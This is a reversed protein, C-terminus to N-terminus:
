ARVEQKEKSKAWKINCHRIYGKVESGVFESRSKHLKNPWVTFKQRYKNAAWGEKFGKEDAYLLLQSYWVQKQVMTYEHTKVKRTKKTVIGLEGDIVEVGRGNVEHLTGCTPCIPRGKYITFCNKCTIPHAEKAKRKEQIKNPAVKGTTLEWDDYEEPFGHEYVAGAHDIIISDKKGPFCRIARGLMQLYMVVSKTPRALICCDIGPNDYGEIYVACNSVVQIEGSRHKRDIEEREDQPTKGDVHAANVGARNFEEAIHISHAVSSAFVIAKRDPCIRGFNEVVDGVLKPKDMASALESEVYDGARVSVGSLDPQTPAYLIPPVLFGQSILESISPCQVMTDYLDGLGQGDGRAPTATLGIVIAEPYHEIIKGYLPSMSRHCEDIILIDCAPWPHIGRKECWSMMTQISAVTVFRTVPAHGAMLMGHDVGAETLKNSSQQALVRRHVLFISTKGKGVASRIIEGAIVTKGAGTPAQLLLRKHGSRIAARLGDIAIPQFEWLKINSGKNKETAM